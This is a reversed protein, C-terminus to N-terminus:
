RREIRYGEALFRLGPGRPPLDALARWSNGTPRRVIAVLALVRASRDREFRRRLKEGPLLTFEEVRILDPGLTEQAAGYIQEFEAGELRAASKLQYIRIATPLSDGREDPNLRDAAAIEIEMPEGGEAPKSRFLGCASGVAAAVILLLTRRNYTM